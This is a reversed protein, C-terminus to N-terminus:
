FKYALGLNLFAVGYGLEASVAFKPHLFYRAGIFESFGIGSGYSDSTYDLYPDNDSYSYNLINYSVMIGAYVDWKNLASGNISQLHWAGRVGLLTYKWRQEYTYGGYYNGSYHYSKYGAYAGLSVIGNGLPWIAREYQLNIAPSQRGYTFSGYSSGLGIGASIVNDGEEYASQANSDFSIAMLLCAIYSSINKRM